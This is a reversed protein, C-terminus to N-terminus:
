QGRGKEGVLELLRAHDIASVRKGAPKVAIRTEAAIMANVVAEETAQVAATYFSDLHADNLARLEMVDPAHWPNAQKNATSFALFIDGSYHGGSTGGRGIGISGRRALRNLQHPLLPADTAIVVIISGTERPHVLDERMHKGVPVGSITLGDRSGHNAQV